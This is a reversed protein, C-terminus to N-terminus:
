FAARELSLTFREAALKSGEDSKASLRGYEFLLRGVEHQISVQVTIERLEPIKHDRRIKSYPNG